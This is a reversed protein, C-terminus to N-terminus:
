YICTCHFREDKSSNLTRILPTEPTGLITNPVVNPTGQKNLHTLVTCTIAYIVICVSPDIGAIVVWNSFLTLVIHLLLVVSLM